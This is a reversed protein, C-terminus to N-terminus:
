SAQENGKKENRTKDVIKMIKAWYDKPSEVFSLNDNSLICNHSNKLAIVPIHKTIDAIGSRSDELMLTVGHKLCIESKTSTASFAGLFSDTNSYKLLEQVIADTSRKEASGEKDNRYTIIEWKFGADTIKQILGPICPFLTAQTYYSIEDPANPNGAVSAVINGDNESLGFIECYNEGYINEPERGLIRRGCEIVANKTDVITGDIDIGIIIQKNIADFRSDFESKDQFFSKREQLMKKMDIAKRAAISDAGYRAAIDAIREDMTVANGKSDVNLDAFNLLYSFINYDVSEGHGEVASIIDKNDEIKSIMNASIEPHTKVDGFEYGVDHLWGCLFLMECTDEDFGMSKGEQYMKRAVELIHHLRDETIM